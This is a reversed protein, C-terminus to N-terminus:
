KTECPPIPRAGLPQTEGRFLAMEPRKQAAGVALGFGIDGYSRAEYKSEYVNGHLDIWKSRCIPGSKTGANDKFLSSFAMAALKLAMREFWNDAPNQIASISAAINAVVGVRQNRRFRKQDGGGTVWNAGRIHM